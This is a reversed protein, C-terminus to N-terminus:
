IVKGGHRHPRTKNYEHKVEIIHELDVKFAGALDLIRIVADAVEVWFGEPKGGASLYTDMTGNRDDETAEALETIVLLLKEPLIKHKEEATAADDWWGHEKANEHIADAWCRITKSM